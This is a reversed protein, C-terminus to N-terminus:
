LVAMGILGLVLLLALVALITKELRTVPLPM